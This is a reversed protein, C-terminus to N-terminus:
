EKEARRKSSVFVANKKAASGVPVLKARLRDQVVSDIMDKPLGFFLGFERLSAMEAMLETVNAIDDFEEDSLYPSAMEDIQHSDVAPQWQENAARIVAQMRARVRTLIMRAESLLLKEEESLVEPGVIPLDARGASSESPSNKTTKTPV